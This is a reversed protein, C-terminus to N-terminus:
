YDDDKIEMKSKKKKRSGDKSTEDIRKVVDVKKLTKTNKLAVAARDAKEVEEEEQTSLLTGELTLFGKDRPGAGQGVSEFDRIVFQLEEDNRIPNDDGDIWYGEGEEEQAHDGSAVSSKKSRAPEWRWDKPIHRFPISANFLNYCILGIHSESSITPYGKLVIGKKPQLLLFTATLWIFPTGYEDVSRALPVNGETNQNTTNPPTTSLEPDSYSLIVGRLPPYYTLILPSLHDACLGPLAHAPRSSIPPVNLYFTSRITTFPSTSSRAGNADGNATLSGLSTAPEKFRHGLTRVKKTPSELAPDASSSAQSLSSQDHTRKRSHKSASKSASTKHKSATEVSM